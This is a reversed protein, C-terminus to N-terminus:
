KEKKYKLQIITEDKLNDELVTIEGFTMSSNFWTALHNNKYNGSIHEIASIISESEFVSHSKRNKGEHMSTHTIDFIKM